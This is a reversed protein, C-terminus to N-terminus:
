RRTTRTLTIHWNGVPKGDLFVDELHMDINTVNDTVAMRVFKLLISELEGGATHADAKGDKEQAAM